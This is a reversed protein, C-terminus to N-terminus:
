FKRARIMRPAGFLDERLVIDKFNLEKLLATMEPGMFENIEFYLSGGPLLGKQALRAISRYFVLPDQDKVYLAVEPEHKLVNGRMAGKESERVYPPNSVILDFQGTLDDADLIDQHIFSVEAKNADANQRAIELAQESVDIASCRSKELALALSIAICGSGTGIDLIKLEKKPSAESVIWEVLEETEPRPILVDKTVKFDRSLFETNGTLYQVPFELKLKELAENMLEAEPVGLQQNPDMAMELRSKGTFHQLLLHFMSDVEEAPYLKELSSRYTQRM